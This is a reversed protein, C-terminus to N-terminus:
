WLCALAESEDGGHHLHVGQLHLGGHVHHHTVVTALDPAQLQIIKLSDLKVWPVFSDFTIFPPSSNSLM